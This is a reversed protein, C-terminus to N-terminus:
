LRRKMIIQESTGGPISWQADHVAAYTHARIRFQYVVTPVLATALFVRSEIRTMIMWKGPTLVGSDLRWIRYQLEYMDIPMGTIFPPNWCIKATSDNSEDIYPAEPAEVALTVKPKSPVSRQSWGCRNRCRVAVEYETAFHLDNIVDSLCEIEKSVVIWPFEAESALNHGATGGEERVLWQDEAENYDDTVQIRYALEWQTIKAGNNNPETWKWSLKDHEQIGEFTAPDPRCPVDAKTSAVSSEGSESWDTWGASQFNCRVRASFARAPLLNSITYRKEQIENSVTVWNLTQLENPKIGLRDVLETSNPDGKPCDKAEPLSFLQLEYALVPDEGDKWNWQVMIARPTSHIIKCATTTYIPSSIDSPESWGSKNWAIVKFEYPTSPKLKNARFSPVGPIGNVWSPAKIKKSLSIWPHPDVLEHEEVNEDEEEPMQHKMHKSNNKKYPNDVEDDLDKEKVAKALLSIEKETLYKRFLLEYFQVHGGRDDKPQTWNVCIMRATAASLRINLPPTSTMDKTTIRQARGFKSYGADSHARITVYYEHQPPLNQLSWKTETLNLIHNWEPNYGGGGITLPYDDGEAIPDENKNGFPDYEGIQQQGENPLGGSVVGTQRNFWYVTKTIPDKGTAYITQKRRPKWYLEYRDIPTGNDPPAVWELSISNNTSSTKMSLPQHPVDRLMNMALEWQYEAALQIPLRGDYAEIKRNAGANLLIHLLDPDGRRACLHLATQGTRGNQIDPDAGKELLLRVVKRQGQDVAGQLATCKLYSHLVNINQGAQIRLLTGRYDGSSAVDFFKDNYNQIARAGADPPPKFEWQRQRKSSSFSRKPSPM